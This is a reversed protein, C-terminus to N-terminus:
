QAARRSKKHVTIALKQLQASIKLGAQEAQDVNIAFRVKDNETVFTVMGGNVAFRSSEGVTLVVVPMGAAIEEFRQEEGAPVFVLHLERLDEAARVVRVVISRGNVKRDLVTKELEDEFPNGGVVGIVIPAAAGPFRNAPWEVFKTFNYLFAAKIQYERSVDARMAVAGFVVFATSLLRRARRVWTPAAAAPQKSRSFIRPRRRM